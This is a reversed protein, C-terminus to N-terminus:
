SGITLLRAGSIALVGLHAFKGLQHEVLWACFMGLIDDDKKKKKKKKLNVSLTKYEVPLPKHPAANRSSAAAAVPVSAANGNVVLPDKQHQKMAAPPAVEAPILNQSAGLLL